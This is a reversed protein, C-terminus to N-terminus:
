GVYEIPRLGQLFEDSNKPQPLAPEARRANHTATHDPAINKLVELGKGFSEAFL